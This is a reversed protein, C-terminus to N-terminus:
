SMLGLSCDHGRTFSVYALYARWVVFFVYGPPARCARSRRHLITLRAHSAMFAARASGAAAVGNDCLHSFVRVLRQVLLGTVSVDLIQTLELPCRSPPAFFPLAIATFPCNSVPWKSVSCRAHCHSVVNM